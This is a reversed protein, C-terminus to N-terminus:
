MAFLGGIKGSQDLVFTMAQKGGAFIALYHYRTYGSMSDQGTYELEKFQGLNALNQRLSDVAAPTLGNKMADDLQSSDVKGDLLDSFFATFRKTYAGASASRAAQKARIAAIAQASDAPFYAELAPVLAAGTPYLFDNGLTIVAFHERPIIEDDAEFGPVGGHHGVLRQSGWPFVEMGLGYSAGDDAPKAQAAMEAFTAPRLLTGNMLAIDFRALDGATSLIDGCGYYWSSDGPDQAARGKSLAYGTAVPANAPASGAYTHTMGAPMFIHERYYTHLPTGSVREVIQGLIVYNTNSYSYQTGPASLPKMKAVQAIIAQPTTPKQAQGDQLAQDLYNPIGSRHMLLERVTIQSANPFQPEWKALVDDLGLKKQEVLQMVAVATFMKTTSGIHYLTGPSAPENKAIDRLGLANDYVMKGGAVIAVSSSAARHTDVIQKQAAIVAALAAAQTSM